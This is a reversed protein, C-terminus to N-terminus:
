HDPERTVRLISNLGGAREEGAQGAATLVVDQGVHGDRRCDRTTRRNKLHADARAFHQRGTIFGIKQYRKVLVTVLVVYTKKALAAYQQVIRVVDFRVEIVCPENVDGHRDSSQGNFREAARGLVFAFVNEDEAQDRFNEIEVGVLQFSQDGFFETSLVLADHVRSQHGKLGAIPVRNSIDEGF